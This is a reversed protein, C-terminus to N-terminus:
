SAIRELRSLEQTVWQQDADTLIGENAALVAFVPIEEGMAAAEWVRDHTQESISKATHLNCIDHMVFDVFRLEDESFLRTDPETLAIYDTKTYDYCRSAKVVIDDNAQLSSIVTEIEMPVPGYQLKKYRAGSVTQGTRRYMLTDVRWLIKNLKTKGLKSPDDCKSCIYHVLAKYRDEIM